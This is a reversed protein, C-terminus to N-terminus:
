KQYVFALLIRQVGSVDLLHFPLQQLLKQRFFWVEDHLVPIGEGLVKQVLLQQYTKETTCEQTKFYILIVFNLM